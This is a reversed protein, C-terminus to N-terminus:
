PNGMEKKQLEEYEYKKNYIGKESIEFIEALAKITIKQGQLKTGNYIYKLFNYKEGEEVILKDYLEKRIQDMKGKKKKHYLESMIGDYKPFTDYFLPPVRFPTKKKYTKNLEIMDRLKNKNWYALRGRKYVHIYGRARRSSFFPNIYFVDPVVIISFLNEGRVVEYTKTVAYNFKNMMRLSSLEGAEDYLMLHFQRMERFGKLFQDMGLAIFNILKKPDLQKIHGDEKLRKYWWEMIHLGITSKGIGEDGGIILANDWDDKTVKDYVVNLVKQIRLM